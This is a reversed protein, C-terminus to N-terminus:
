NKEIEGIRLFNRKIGLPPPTLIGLIGKRTKLLFFLFFFQM